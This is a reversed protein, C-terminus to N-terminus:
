LEVSNNEHKIKLNTFAKNYMTVLSLTESNEFNQTSRLILSLNMSFIGCILM